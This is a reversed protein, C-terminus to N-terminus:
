NVRTLERHFFRTLERRFDVGAEAGGTPAVAEFDLVIVRAPGFDLRTPMNLTPYKRVFAKVYRVFMETANERTDAEVKGFTDQM